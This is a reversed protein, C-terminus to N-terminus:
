CLLSTCTWTLTGGSDVGCVCTPSCRGYSCSLGPESCAV